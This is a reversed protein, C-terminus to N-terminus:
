LEEICLVQSIVCGGIGYRATAEGVTYMGGQDTAQM